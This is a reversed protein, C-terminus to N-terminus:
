TFLVYKYFMHLTFTDKNMKRERAISDKLWWEEPWTNKLSVVNFCRVALINM